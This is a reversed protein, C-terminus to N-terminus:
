ITQIFNLLHCVFFFLMCLSLLRISGKRTEEEKTLTMSALNTEVPFNLFSHKCQQTYFYLYKTYVEGTKALQGHSGPAYRLSHVRSNHHNGGRDECKM